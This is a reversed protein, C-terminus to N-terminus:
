HRRCIVQLAQKQYAHRVHGVHGVHDVHDVHDVADSCHEVNNYPHTNTTTYTYVNKKKNSDIM